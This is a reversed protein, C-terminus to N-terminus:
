KDTKVQELTLLMRGDGAETALEAPPEAGPRPAICLTLKGEELAYAFHIATLTTGSQAYLTLRKSAGSVDITYAGTLRRTKEAFSLANDTFTVSSLEPKSMAKGDLQAAVLNWTGLLRAREGPSPDGKEEAVLNRLEFFDFVADVNRAHEANGNKALIGVSKPAGNGWTIDAYSHFHDGDDSSAVEYRDGRKVVRIWVRASSVPVRFSTVKSEGKTEALAILQAQGLTLYEAVFKLYNDDDDYIVLGAQNYATWPRFGELCTTAVFDAEARGSLDVLFLNKALVPWGTQYISGYQTTITLKGPNKTLSQNGADPRIQQWPLALRGDFDDFLRDPKAGANGPDAAPCRPAYSLSAAMLLLLLNTRRM